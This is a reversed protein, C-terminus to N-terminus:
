VVSFAILFVDCKPYLMPRLRTHSHNASTDWVALKIEQGSINMLSDYDYINPIYDSPFQDQTGRILLCTKGINDDGIICLKISIPDFM